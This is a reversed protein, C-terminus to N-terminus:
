LARGSYATLKPKFTCGKMENEEKKKKWEEAAQKKKKLAQGQREHFSLDGINVKSPKTASLDLKWDAWTNGLDTKLRRQTTKQRSSINPPNAKFSNENNFKKAISPRFTAEKM